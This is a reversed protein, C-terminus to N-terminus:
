GGGREQGEGREALEQELKRMESDHWIQQALNRAYERMAAREEPSYKQLADDDTRTIAYAGCKLRHRAEHIIAM